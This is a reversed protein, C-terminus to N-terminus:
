SAADHVGQSPVPCAKGCIEQGNIASVAQTAASPEEYTVYAAGVNLGKDRVLRVNKVPGLAKFIDQPAPLWDSATRLAYLLIADEEQMQYAPVGRFEEAPQLCPQCNACLSM